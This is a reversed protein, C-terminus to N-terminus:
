RALLQEVEDRTPASGLGGSRTCSLSAAAVAFRLAAEVPEGRLLASAFAANLTDGAGNTDKVEIRPAPASLFDGQETLAHAGASGLKLLINKPGMSQFLRCLDQADAVTMTASPKAGSHKGANEHAYFAAESENPTFWTLQRLLEPSLPAAPAPDLMVPVGAEGAIALTEALAAIPTELQTLIMAAHSLVARQQRIHIATLAANAGPAIVISNNGGPTLLIVATGTPEDTEILLTTDVSAGTLAKRLLDAAEDRGLCGLMRTRSGLQAAAASQNAGKGGPARTFATSSQTAGPRPLTAIHLQLDLNLSGLVLLEHM